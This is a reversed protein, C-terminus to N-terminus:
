ELADRVSATRRLLRLFMWTQQTVMAVRGRNRALELCRLIFAAYIDRKGPVYHREVYRKVVPGMNKSGMWPPNATVVDYRHALLDLLALGKSASRGFFAQVLDAAQGEAEFHERLRAMLRSGWGEAARSYAFLPDAGRMAAIEEQVIEEVKLLSGLEDANALGEFIAPLARRIPTDEPHKELFVRVHDDGRPLRINSAVLHDRFGTLVEPSLDPARETGEDVLRGRRDARCARRHRHRVPEEHPDRRLNGGAKTLEGEEEYMAYFLDFAELLFHGSGCAPDLFTIERVPKKTSRPAIPTRSTTNGARPSGAIRPANGDLDRGLSNQVLFKVMYDETYLQTAPIIDAGAIKAGKVTRVKEFM